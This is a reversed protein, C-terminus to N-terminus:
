TATFFQLLIQPMGDQDIAVETDQGNTKPM